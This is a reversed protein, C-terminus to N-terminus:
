RDMRWAGTSFMFFPMKLALLSLLTDLFHTCTNHWAHSHMKLRVVTLCSDSKNTWKILSLLDDKGLISPRINVTFGYYCAANVERSMSKEMIRHCYTINRLIGFIACLQSLIWNLRRLLCIAADYYAKDWVTLCFHDFYPFIQLVPPALLENHIPTGSM